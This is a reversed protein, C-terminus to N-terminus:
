SIRHLTCDWRLRTWVSLLHAWILSRVFLCQAHMNSPDSVAFWLPGEEQLVAWIHVNGGGEAENSNNEFRAPNHFTDYSKPVHRIYGKRIAWYIIAVTGSVGIVALIVPVGIIAFYKWGKQEDHNSSPGFKSDGSFSLQAVVHCFWCFSDAGLSSESWGPCEGLRNLRRQTSLPYSLVWAKKM